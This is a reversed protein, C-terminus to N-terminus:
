IAPWGAEKGYIVFLRQGAMASRKNGSLPGFDDHIDDRMYPAHVIFM